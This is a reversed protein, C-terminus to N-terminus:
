LLGDAKKQIVKIIEDLEIASDVLRKVIEQNAEIEKTEFDLLESLSMINCLPARVVHSQMWSIENLKKNQEEIQNIYNTQDTIDQMAGIMKIPEDQKYIIFGRDFVDKYSGDECRFRYNDQMRFEKKKIRENLNSMVMDIDAPHVHERWFDITTELNVNHGFIGKLGRNWIVMNSAFDWEYIADSTAKSVTDYRKISEEIEKEIEVRHTIDRSNSIIGGVAPDDTLDTLITEIWRYEDGKGKFRFPAVEIRKHESLSKFQVIIKGVDDKHVFDFVNRGIYVEPSLGWISKTSPSVYLYNGTKDMVAILDAGEQVLAKFRLESAKLAAEANLNNTIDVILTLRAQKHNFLISNSQINVYIVEGNKKIHRWTKREIQKDHKIQNITEKLIEFDEENRIDRLTMTLFEERSYGYHEIAANNVDMFQLTEIDYVWQPLPSLNFLKRYSEESQNLKQNIIEREISYVISKHLNTLTLEDKLLYDSVGLYLTKVGYHKDNYGTLVIIPVGKAIEVIDTVLTGGLADPLSLDLLIVSLAAESTIMHKAQSLTTANLVDPEDFIETLYDEILLFDGANDEIVLIRLKSSESM